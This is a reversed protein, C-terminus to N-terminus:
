AATDVDVDYQKSQASRNNDDDTVPAIGPAVDTASPRAADSITYSTRPFM